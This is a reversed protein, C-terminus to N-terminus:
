EEIGYLFSDGAVLNTGNPWLAANANVNEHRKKEKRTTIYQNDINIISEELSSNSNPVDISIGNSDYSSVNDNLISSNNCHNSLSNQNNKTQNTELSTVYSKTILLEVKNKSEIEKRLFRIEDNLVAILNNSDDKKPLFGNFHIDIYEAVLSEVNKRLLEKEIANISQEQHDVQTTDSNKNNDHILVETIVKSSHDKLIEM